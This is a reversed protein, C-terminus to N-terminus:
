ANNEEWSKNALEIADNMVDSSNALSLITNSLRVETLGMDDLIAIASKGNRKTNNLGSIFASLAKMADKEFATKFDKATM